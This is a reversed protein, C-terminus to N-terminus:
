LLSSLTASAAKAAEENNHESLVSNELNIDYQGPHKLTFRPAGPRRVGPAGAPIPSKKKQGGQSRMAQILKALAYVGGTAALGGGVYKMNNGWWTPTVKETPETDPPAGKPPPVMERHVGMLADTFQRMSDASHQVSRMPQVIGQNFMKKGEDLSTTADVLNNTSDV